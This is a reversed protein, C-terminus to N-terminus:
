CTYGNAPALHSYLYLAGPSTVSLKKEDLIVPAKFRPLISLHTATNLLLLARHPLASQRRRLIVYTKTLKPKLNLLSTRAKVLTIRAAESGQPTRGRGTM